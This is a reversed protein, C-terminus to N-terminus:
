FAPIKLKRISARRTELLSPLEETKLHHPASSRCRTWCGPAAPSLPGRARAALPLFLVFCVGVCVLECERCGPESRKGKQGEGKM